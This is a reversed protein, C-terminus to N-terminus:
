QVTSVHTSPPHTWVALIVPSQGIKSPPVTTSMPTQWAPHQWHVARKQQSGRDESDDRRAGQAVVNEESRAACPALVRAGPHTTAAARGLHGHGGRTRGRLRGAPGPRRRGARSPRRDGRGRGDRRRRCRRAARARGAGIADAVLPFGVGVAAAGAGPARDVLVAIQRRVAPRIQEAVVGPSARPLVGTVDIEAVVPDLVVCLRVHIAASHADSACIAEPAVADHVAHAVVEAVHVSSERLGRRAM